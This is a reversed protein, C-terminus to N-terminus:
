GRAMQALAARADLLGQAEAMWAAMAQRPSGSLGQLVALTAPLDNGDLARRARALTGTVPDGILVRDGERVSVAQQARSWLRDLFPREATQPVSAKQAADAAAGYAQRLSFDTPPAADAYRALAPPANPIAGLKQGGELAAGAAQLVAFRRSTDSLAGVKADVQAGLQTGLQTLRTSTAAETAAFRAAVTSEVVTGVQGLKADAAGVRADIAAAAQEGATLRKDVASLRGALDTATSDIKATVQATVQAPDYAPRQEITTIRAGLVAIDPVPRQELTALRMELAGLQKQLPAVEVVPRQELAALRATLAETRAALDDGAKGGPSNAYLYYGAVLLVLLGLAYLVPLADMKRAGPEVRAREAANAAADVMPPAVTPFAVAPSAVAPSAVTPPAPPPPTVQPSATPVSPAPDTETM